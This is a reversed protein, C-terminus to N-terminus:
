LVLIRKTLVLKEVTGALCSSHTCVLSINGVESGTVHGRPHVSKKKVHSEKAQLM